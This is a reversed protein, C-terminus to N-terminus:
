HTKVTLAVGLLKKAEQRLVKTVIDAQSKPCVISDHVTVLKGHKGLLDRGTPRGDRDIGRLAPIVRGFILEAETSQLRIALKSAGGEGNRANRLAEALKPWHFAMARELTTPTRKAASFLLEAFVAKKFAGRDARFLAALEPHEDPCARAVGELLREYFKGSAVVSRFRHFEDTGSFESFEGLLFAPQANAIDVEAVTEGNLRLFSRLERPMQTAVHFARGTKKDRRIWTRRNRVDALAAAWSRARGVSPTSREPPRDPVGPDFSLEGLSSFLFGVAERYAGSRDEGSFDLAEMNRAEAIREINRCLVKDTPTFPIPKAASWEAALRAQGSFKGPQYSRGNGFLTKRVELIELADLLNRAGTAKKTGGIVDGVTNVNYPTWGCCKEAAPYIRGNQGDAVWSLVFLLKELHKPNKTWAAAEPQARLFETVGEPVWFTPVARSADALSPSSTAM